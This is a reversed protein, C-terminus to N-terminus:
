LLSLITDQVEWPLQHSFRSELRSVCKWGREYGMDVSPIRKNMGHKAFLGATHKEKGKERTLGIRNTKDRAKQTPTTLVGATGTRLM